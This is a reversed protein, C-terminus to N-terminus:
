LDRLRPNVLIEAERGIMFASAVLLAICVGPPTV